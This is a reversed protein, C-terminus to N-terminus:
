RSGVEGDPEKVGMERRGIETGEWHAPPGTVGSGGEMGGLGEAGKSHPLLDRVSAATDRLCGLVEM